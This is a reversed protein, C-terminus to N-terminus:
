SVGLVRKEETSLKSLARKKIEADKNYSRFEEFSEWIPFENVEGDGIGMVGQGKAAKLAESKTYFYGIPVMPGRGECSDQNRTAVYVTKM